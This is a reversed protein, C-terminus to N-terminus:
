NRKWCSNYLLVYYAFLTLKVFTSLMLTEVIGLNKWKALTGKLFPAIGQRWTIYPWLKHSKLNASFLGSKIRYVHFCFHLYEFRKPLPRKNSIFHATKTRFHMKVIRKAANYHINQWNDCVSIFTSVKGFFTAITQVGILTHCMQIM